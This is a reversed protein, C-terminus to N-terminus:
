RRNRGQVRAFAHLGGPSCVIVACLCAISLGCDEPAIRVPAGPFVAVRKRRPLSDLGGEAAAREAGRRRGTDDAHVSVGPLGGEPALRNTKLWSM